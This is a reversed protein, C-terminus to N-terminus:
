KARKQLENLTRQLKKLEAGYTAWDGNRQAQQAQQFQQGAQRILSATDGTPAASPAQAPTPAASPAATPTSPPAPGGTVKAIAADLTDEMAIRNGLVVIVRAFKPLNTKSVTSELYLPQIYLIANKIPIALLNGLTVQSGGQRWLTLQASITDTANALAEVQKPGYALKGQGFKFVVLKGYDDMDCKASIWAVMNAKGARIAPRLLLFEEDRANPLRMILYYPEMDISQGGTDDQTQVQPTEWLDTKNFYASPDTMHYVNYVVTQISFLDEPYRIHRRINDPMASFPTFARGFARAYAAIIPDRTDAYAKVDGTYADITIKVSNRIYNFTDDFESYKFRQQTAHSYPVQDTTTYADQIWLMRGNVLVLYPDNDFKLFPFLATTREQITRRWLLRSDSSVQNSILLNVDGLRMSFLLKDLYGGIRIGRNSKYNTTMNGSPSAYDFEATKTNVVAYNDTLEGFYIDPQTARLDISSDVPMDQLFYVPSGAQGVENVPSMVLGYGHTYVLQRNLWNQAQSPLNEQQLERASLMVQRYTGDITYRDIDVDNFEYYQQLTQMQQYARKLPDYDWLRANQLTASNAAMDAPSLNGTALYERSDVDTLGYARRTGDIGYTIYPREKNLPNPTVVLQQLIVPYISGLLLSVVLIGVLGAAALTIGRRPINVVTLIAALGCMFMLAYMAILRGHIDAYGPGPILTSNTLLLGYRDLWYGIGRLVFLLALIAFVHTKVKPAFRPINGLMEIAQGMYYLAIIAVGSAALAFFLWYYIDRILPLQFVYFGLDKHFIPDLQGFKGGYMFRLLDDWSTTSALGVFIAVVFTALALLAGLGRRAYVALRQRLEDVYLHRDTPLPAIKRALALNSYVIIFFAGASIFFISLKLRLMKGFIMSYGVSSFWMWDTVLRLLTGGFLLLILILGAIIWGLYRRL